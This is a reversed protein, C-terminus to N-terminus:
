RSFASSNSHNLVSFEDKEQNETRVLAHRRLSLELSTWNEDKPDALTGGSNSADDPRDASSKPGNDCPTHNDMAGILDFERFPKQEYCMDEGLCGTSTFSRQFNVGSNLDERPRIAQSSCAADLVLETSKDSFFVNKKM